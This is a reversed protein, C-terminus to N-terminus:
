LTKPKLGQYLIDMTPNAPDNNIRGICFVTNENDSSLRLYVDRTAGSAIEPKPSVIGEIIMGKSLHEEYINIQREEADEPESSYQQLGRSWGSAIAFQEVDEQHLVIIGDSRQGWSPVRFRVEDKPNELGDVNLRFNNVNQRQSKICLFFNFANIITGDPGRYTTM